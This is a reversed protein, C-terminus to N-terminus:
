YDEPLMINIAPSPDEMSQAEIFAWITVEKGSFRVPFTAMNGDTEGVMGRCCFAFMSLVDWLRGKISQGSEQQSASPVIHTHYLNSTVAVPHKIGAEKAMDSVDIFTGDNIADQRTYSFIVNEM